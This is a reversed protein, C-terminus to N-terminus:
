VGRAAEPQPRGVARRERPRLLEFGARLIAYASLVGFVLSGISAAILMLVNLLDTM